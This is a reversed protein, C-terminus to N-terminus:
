FSFQIFHGSYFSQTLLYMVYMTYHIYHLKGPLFSSYVVCFKALNNMNKNKKVFIFTQKSVITNNPLRSNQLTICFCSVTHLRSQSSKHSYQLPVPGCSGMGARLSSLTCVMACLVKCVM